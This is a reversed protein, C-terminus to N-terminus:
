SYLADRLRDQVERSSSETFSENAVCIRMVEKTMQKIEIADIAAIRDKHATGVYGWFLESFWMVSGLAEIYGSHFKWRGPNQSIDVIMREVPPPFGNSRMPLTSYNRNAVKYILPDEANQWKDYEVDAVWAQVFHPSVIFPAAWREWDIAACAAKETIEVYCLEADAIAGYQFVLTPTEIQSLRGTNRVTTLLKKLELSSGHAQFKEDLNLHRLVELITELADIAKLAGYRREGVEIRPKETMVTTKGSDPILTFILKLKETRDRTM